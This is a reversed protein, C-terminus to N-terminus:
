PIPKVAEMHINKQPKRDFQDNCLETFQSQRTYVRKVDVFGSDLLLDQVRKENMWNRHCSPYRRHLDVPIGSKYKEVFENFDQSEVDKRVAQLFSELDNKDFEKRLYASAFWRILFYEPIYESSYQLDNDQGDGIIEQMWEIDRQFYKELALDMDPVTIHIGGGPKLIRHSERLTRDIADDSLHELTAQSYVLDYSESEIPWQELKELDIPYDIFIGDYSYDDNHYDLVRWNNRLFDGGGVNLYRPNDSYNRIINKKKIQKKKKGGVIFRGVFQISEGLLVRIGYNNLLEFGDSIKQKM